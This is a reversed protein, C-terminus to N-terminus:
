LEIAWALRNGCLRCRIVGAGSVSVVDGCSHQERECKIRILGETDASDDGRAASRGLVYWRIRETPCLGSTVIRDFHYSCDKFRFVQFHDPSSFDLGATKPSFQTYYANQNVLDITMTDGIRTNFYALSESVLSLDHLWWWVSGPQVDRAKLLALKDTPNLHCRFQIPKYFRLAIARTERDVALAAPNSTSSKIMYTSTAAENSEPAYNPTWQGWIRVHRREFAHEWIMLKLEFPLKQYHPFSTPHSTFDTVCPSSNISQAGQVWNRAGTSLPQGMSIELRFLDSNLGRRQAQDFSKHM